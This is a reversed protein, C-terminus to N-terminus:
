PLQSQQTITLKGSAGLTTKHHQRWDTLVARCCVAPVHLCGTLMCGTLVPRQTGVEQLGGLAQGGRRRCTMSPVAHRAAELWHQDPAQLLHSSHM